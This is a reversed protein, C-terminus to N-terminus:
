GAPEDKYFVIKRFLIVMCVLYIFHTITYAYTAGITGYKDILFVSSLILVFFNM